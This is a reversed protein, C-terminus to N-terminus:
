SASRNAPSSDVDRKTSPVPMECHACWASRPEDDIHLSDDCTICRMIIPLAHARESDTRFNSREQNCDSCLTRLNWSADSGGASWPVIHDVELRGGRKFCWCCTFDDRYLVLIRLWRPLPERPGRRVIPLRQKAVLAEAKWREVTAVPDIMQAEHDLDCDEGCWDSM